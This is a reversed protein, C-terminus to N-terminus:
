TASKVSRRWPDSVAEVSAMAVVEAVESAYNNSVMSEIDNVPEDGLNTLNHDVDHVAEINNM